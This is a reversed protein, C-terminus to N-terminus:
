PPPRKESKAEQIIAYAIISIFGFIIVFTMIPIIWVVIIFLGLTILGGILLAKIAAMLDTHRSASTPLCPSAPM